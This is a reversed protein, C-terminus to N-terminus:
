DGNLGNPSPPDGNLGNPSPPDGNLGNPSPPDGNLGNPSPTAKPSAEDRERHAMWLGSISHSTTVVTGRFFPPHFEDSRRTEFLTGDLTGFDFRNGFGTTSFIDSRLLFTRM